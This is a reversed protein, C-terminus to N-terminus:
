IGRDGHAKVIANELEFLSADTKIGRSDIHTLFARHGEDRLSKLVLDTPVSPLGKRSCIIDIKYFGPPFGIEDRVLSIIDMLRRNAGVGLVESKKLMKECFSTDALDGIWMPGAVQMESGCVSCIREEYLEKMSLTNRQSCKHCHLVYGIKQLSSDAKKAGRDIVSYLRVYHDSSYSFAPKVSTEHRAATTALASALFRIAQEHCYETRLPRGGYRRICARSNVGCLPAMDTATLAIIGKKKCARIATDMFTVPSGYPDIDVYDFRHLPRAHLSLLLNAESLRVGIKNTVGNIKANLKALGVAQPNLDGMVVKEVGRVELALRIGRVGSGCFPECATIERGLEGQHAALVLVTSDRNLKMLPNYFVPARSMAQQLNVGQELEPISMSAEGEEVRVTPFDL